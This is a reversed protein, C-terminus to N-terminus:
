CGNREGSAVLNNDERRQGRGWGTRLQQRGTQVGHAAGEQLCRCQFIGRAHPQHRLTAGQSVAQLRSGGVRGGGCQPAHHAHQAVFGRLQARAQEVQWASRIAVVCRCVKGRLQGMGQQVIIALVFGHEGRLPAKSRAHDLDVEVAQRRCRARERANGKPFGRCIGGVACPVQVEGQGPLQAVQMPLGAAPAHGLAIFDLDFGDHCAQIEAVQHVGHAQEAVFRQLLAKGTGGQTQFHGPAHQAAAGVHGAELGAVLHQGKGAGAQGAMHQHGLACYGELRQGPAKLLGGRHGRHKKGDPVGQDMQGLQLRALTHQDMAGCATHTKRGNLNGLMQTGLHKGGCAIGVLAAKHTQQTGVM